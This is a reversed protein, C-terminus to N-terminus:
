HHRGRQCLRTLLYGSCLNRMEEDRRTEVRGPEDAPHSSVERSEHHDCRCDAQYAIFTPVDNIIPTRGRRRSRRSWQPSLLPPLMLGMSTTTSSTRSIFIFGQSSTTSLSLPASGPESALTVMSGGDVPRVGRTQLIGWDEIAEQIIPRDM